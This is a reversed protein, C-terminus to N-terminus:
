VLQCYIAGVLDAQEDVDELALEIVNQLQLTIVVTIDVYLSKPKNDNRQSDLVESCLLFYYIAKM